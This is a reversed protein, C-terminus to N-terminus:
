AVERKTMVPFNSGFLLCDIVGYEIATHAGDSRQQPRRFRASLDAYVRANKRAQLAGDTGTTPVSSSIRKASRILSDHSPASRGPGRPPLIQGPLACMAARLM